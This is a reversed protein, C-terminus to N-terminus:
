PMMREAISHGDTWVRAVRLPSGEQELPAANMAARAETENDGNYCVRYTLTSPRHPLGYNAMVIFSM